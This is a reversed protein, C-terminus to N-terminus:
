PIKRKCLASNQRFNIVENTCKPSTNCHGEKLIASRRGDGTGSFCTQFSSFKMKINQLSLKKPKNGKGNERVLCKGLLFLFLIVRALKLSRFIFPHM